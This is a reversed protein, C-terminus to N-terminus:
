PAYFEVPPHRDGDGILILPRPQARRHSLRFQGAVRPERCECQALTVLVFELVDDRYPGPRLRGVLHGPPQLSGTHGGEGAIGVFVYELICVEVLTAEEDIEVMGRKTDACM